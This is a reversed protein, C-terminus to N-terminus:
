RNKGMAWPIKGDFKGMSDVIKALLESDLSGFATSTPPDGTSIGPRGIVPHIPPLFFWPFFM